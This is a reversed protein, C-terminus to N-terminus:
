MRSASDTAHSLADIAKRLAADFEELRAASYISGTTSSTVGDGVSAARVAGLLSERVRHAHDVAVTLDNLLIDSACIYAADARTTKADVGAISSSSASGSDGRPSADDASTEGEEEIEEPISERRLPSRQGPPQLMTVGSSGLEYAVYSTSGGSTTTGIPSFFTSEPSAAAAAPPSSTPSGSMEFDDECELMIASVADGGAEEADTHSCSVANHTYVEGCRAALISATTSVVASSSAVEYFSVDIDEPGLAAAAAAVISADFSISSSSEHCDIADEDIDIDIDIDISGGINFDGSSEDHETVSTIHQHPMNNDGHNRDSSSSLSAPARCMDCTSVEQATTRTHPVTLGASSVVSERRTSVEGIAGDIVCAAAAAAVATNDQDGTELPAWRMTRPSSLLELRIGYTAALWTAGLAEATSTDETNDTDSNSPSRSPRQGDIDETVCTDSNSPSSCPRQGNTSVPSSLLRCAIAPTSSPVMAEQATGGRVDSNSSREDGSRAHNQNHAFDHAIGEEAFGSEERNNDIDGESTKASIDASPARVTDGNACEEISHMLVDDDIAFCSEAADADLLPQPLLPAAPTTNNVSRAAEDVDEVRPSTDNLSPVDNLSRTSNDILLPSTDSLSPTSNSSPKSTTTTLSIQFLTSCSCEADVSRDTHPPRTSCSDYHLAGKPAPGRASFVLLEDNRATMASSLVKSLRWVLLLGDEGGTYLRTCDASFALATVSGAHGTGRTLPDGTFFDFLVVAGSSYAVALILGSPDLAARHYSCMFAYAYENM